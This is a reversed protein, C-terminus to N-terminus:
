IDGNVIKNWKSKIRNNEEEKGSDASNILKIGHYICNVRSGEVLEPDLNLEEPTLSVLKYKNFNAIVKMIDEM